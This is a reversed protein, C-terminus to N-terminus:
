YKVPGTDFELLAFFVTEYWPVYDMSERALGLQPM